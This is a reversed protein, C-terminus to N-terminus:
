VLCVVMEVDMNEERGMRSESKEKSAVHLDM